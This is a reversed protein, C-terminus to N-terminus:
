QKKKKTKKSSLMSLLKQIMILFWGCQLLANVAFFVSLLIAGSSGIALRIADYDRSIWNKIVFPLPVVRVLGFVIFFVLSSISVSIDSSKYGATLLYQRINMLPTSLENFQFLCAIPQMVKHYSCFTWCLIAAIHHLVFPYGMSKLSPAALIDSFLYGVFVGSYVAPGIGTLGYEVYTRDDFLINPSIGNVDDYRERGYFVVSYTGIVQLLAHITSPLLSHYHYTKGIDLANVREKFSSTAFINTIIPSLYRCLFYGISGGVFGYVFSPPLADFLLM